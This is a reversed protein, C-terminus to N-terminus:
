AAARPALLEDYLRELRHVMRPLTFEAEVRRSAAAGM